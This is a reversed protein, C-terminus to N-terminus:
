FPSAAVKLDVDADYAEEWSARKLGKPHFNDYVVGEVEVGYHKGNTSIAHNPDDTLCIFGRSPKENQLTLFKGKIKQTTLWAKLGKAFELCKGKGYTKALAAATNQIETQDLM